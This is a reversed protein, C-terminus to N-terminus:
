TNISIDDDVYLPNTERKPKRDLNTCSNRLKYKKKPSGKRRRDYKSQRYNKTESISFAGVTNLDLHSEKKYTGTENSCESSSESESASESNRRRKACEQSLKRLLQKKGLRQRKLKITRRRSTVPTKLTDDSNNFEINDTDISVNSINNNKKVMNDKM